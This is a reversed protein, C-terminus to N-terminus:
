YPEDGPFRYRNAAVFGYVREQFPGIM